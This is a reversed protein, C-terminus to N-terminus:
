TYDLAFVTVAIVSVIYAWRAFTRVRVLAEDKQRSALHDALVSYCLALFIILSDGAVFTDMRTLYSIKPLLGGIVRLFATLTM